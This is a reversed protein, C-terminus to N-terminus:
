LAIGFVDAEEAVDAINPTNQHWVSDTSSLGSTTGSFVNVAGAAVAGQVDEYPAGIALDSPGGNFNGVALSYGFNDYAESVSSTGSSQTLVRNGTLTLGNAGRRIVNVAGAQKPSGLSENPVGIALEAYADGDLREPM